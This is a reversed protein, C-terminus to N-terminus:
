KSESSKFYHGMVFGLTPGVLGSVALLNDKMNLLAEPPPGTRSSRPCPGHLLFFRLLDDEESFWALFPWDMAWSEAFLYHIYQSDKGM